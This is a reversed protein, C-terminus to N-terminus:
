LGVTVGVMMTQISGDLHPKNGERLETEQHNLEGWIAFQAIPLDIGLQAGVGLDWGTGEYHHDAQTAPAQLWTKNLGGRGYLELPGTHFFYYELDVGLSLTSHAGSGTFASDGAFDSGFLSAELAFNGFRQGLSLRMASSEDDAFRSDLEGALNSEGVGLSVYGGGAHAPAALLTAAALTALAASLRHM